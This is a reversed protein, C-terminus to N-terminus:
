ISQCTSKGNGGLEQLVFSKLSNEVNDLIRNLTSDKIVM